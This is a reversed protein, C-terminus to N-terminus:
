ADEAYEKLLEFKLRKGKPISRMFGDSILHNIAKDVWEHSGLSRLENKTADPFCKISDRFVSIATHARHPLGDNVDVEGGFTINSPDIELFGCVLLRELWGREHGLDVLMLRVRGAMKM